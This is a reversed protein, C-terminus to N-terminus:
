ASRRLRRRQGTDSSRGGSRSASSEQGRIARGPEAARSSPPESDDLTALTAMAKAPQESAHLYILTTTADAHGLAAQISRIDAGNEMLRTAFAHRVSHPKINDHDSLGAIAKVEEFLVRFGHEAVKREKGYAWLWDTPHDKPRLALWGELAVLCEQPPYLVRSKDGKGHQVLLTKNPVNVHLVKLNLLESTRLGCYVLVSLMARTLAVKQPNRQREVAELLAVIEDRSVLLRTAADRKPLRVSHAPSDKLIGNEECFLGLGRFAHFNSRITRPRLGRESLSYLYRRLLQTTFVATLSPETYGQGKLWDEYQQIHCKYCYFTNTSLGREHRLHLLYDQAVDSFLM